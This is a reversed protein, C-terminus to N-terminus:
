SATGTRGPFPQQAPPAFPSEAPPDPMRFKSCDDRLERGLEFIGHMYEALEDIQATYTRNRLIRPSATTFGRFDLYQIQSRLAEPLANDRGRLIVPIIMGQKPQLKGTWAARRRSELLSMAEYERLCYEQSGYSPVYVLVWCASACMAEALAENFRFGPRLRAEDLFVADRKYPELSSQLADYLDEIFEKMLAESAHVHSIFCAYDFPM